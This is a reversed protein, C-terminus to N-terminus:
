WPGVRPRSRREDLAVASRWGLSLCSTVRAIRRGDRVLGTLIRSDEESGSPSGGEAEGEVGEIAEAGLDAEQGVGLEDVQELRGIAADFEDARRRAHHDPEVVTGEDVPRESTM